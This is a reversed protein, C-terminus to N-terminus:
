AFSLSVPLRLHSFHALCRWFSLVPQATDDKMRAAMASWAHSTHAPTRRQQTDTESHGTGGYMFLLTQESDGWASTAYAVDPMGATVTSASDDQWVATDNYLAASYAANFLVSADSLKHGGWVILGSDILQAPYARQLTSQSSILAGQLGSGVPPSDISAAASRDVTLNRWVPAAFSASYDLAWTGLLGTDDGVDGGVLVLRGHAADVGSWHDCFGSAPATSPDISLHIWTAVVASSTCPHPCASLLLLVLRWCSAVPLLRSLRDNVTANVAAGRRHHISHTSTQQVWAWVPSQAVGVADDTSIM